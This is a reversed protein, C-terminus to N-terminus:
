VLNILRKRHRDFYQDWTEKRYSRGYMYRQAFELQMKNPVIGKGANREAQAFFSLNSFMKNLEHVRYDADNIDKRVLIYIFVRSRSVGYKEFWQLVKKFYPLQWRTDCSFRIYKIWNIKSYLKVIDETVLRIDMGQNLDIKIDSEALSYLQKIGHDCALINNDMLVLKDTDHRILDQWTRYPKIDGEKRPVYCWDCNNPCGRTIFGIAYDCDPYITYDPYTEEIEPPLKLDINYGTGGKITNDPLYPNISTFDFIKSSYVRDYHSLPMWWEVNDGHAKYWASIKMLAYNPFTKGKIHEADADHLGILM